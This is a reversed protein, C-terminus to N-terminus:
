QTVNVKLITVSPIRAGIALPAHGQRLIGSSFIVQLLARAVPDCFPEPCLAPQVSDSHSSSPGAQLCGLTIINRFSFAPGM